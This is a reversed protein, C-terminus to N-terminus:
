LVVTKKLSPHSTVCFDKRVEKPKEPISEESSTYDSTPEAYITTYDFKKMVEMMKLDIQEALSLKKFEPSSMLSKVSEKDSGDDNGNDEAMENTLTVETDELKESVVRSVCSAHFHGYCGRCKSVDDQKECVQCVWGKYAGKFINNRKHLAVQAELSNTSLKSSSDTDSLSAESMDSKSKPEEITKPPKPSLKPRKPHDLTEKPSRERKKKPPPEETTSRRRKKTPIPKAPEEETVEQKITKLKARESIGLIRGKKETKTAFMNSFFDLREEVTKNQLSVAEDVAVTWKPKKREPVFYGSRKQSCCLKIFLEIYVILSVKSIEYLREM